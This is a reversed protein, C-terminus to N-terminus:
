RIYVSANSNMVVAAVAALAATIKPNLGDPMVTEGTSLIGAYANENNEYVAMQMQFYNMLTSKEDPSPARGTLKQFLQTIQEECSLETNQMLKVALMKSAEVFQPANMLVLSQMPTNTEQRRMICYGRDPADFTNMVPHPITRKWFTYMGRRYLKDGTDQEYNTNSGFSWLGEPQYPKVSPGGITRVLLGSAALAQDRLLEAPLRKTPYRALLLNEPDRERLESATFSSQRYTKSMVIQKMIAKTDWGSQMYQLALWDLLDPHSPLSGQNGFDEATKVLGKGFCQQWLRNVAVRATLPNNPNVLWQSLGLRNKPLSDDFALISQPTNPEVAEGHADYAGRNLLYAQRSEPMEAMVMVEEANEYIDNKAQRQTRLQELLQKYGGDNITSLYFKIFAEKEEPPVGVYESGIFAGHFRSILGRVDQHSNHPNIEYRSLERDYVTIDDVRGNTFGKSRWRAGVRLNTTIGDKVFVIDKYLNDRKVSMDAPEGNIYFHVGAAKGSGDYTLAIHIWEDRPVPNNSILNISNYPYTHALRVDFRDHQVYVQYGKFSYIIGGKNSHFIVGEDLEKPVWVYMAVTFPDAKKFRGVGPFDLMGDGDLQLANNQKQFHSNKDRTVFKPPQDWIKMTVTDVIRGSASEIWQHSSVRKLSKLKENHTEDKDLSYEAVKGPVMTGASSLTEHNIWKKLEESKAQSEIYAAIEDETNKIKEDLESIQKKEEDTFLLMTPSPMDPQSWTIQGAEDVNNFFAFLQYFEKQTIPDYKHDHCRACEMTMGLFARSVTIARDAVYEVRFEENVIGGEANQSHNRNFGTATLQATSPNPLLDGALQETLFQDFPMNQNYADIVWDRWRWTPRYNDAQYGYTDAYRALDLWELAMREGYHPSALLRDVVKQYADPSEDALFADIDEIAPPLGTLDFHVRRLITEKDAESSLTLGELTLKKEVFYDININPDNRMKAANTNQLPILSWHPKYEAGQEIWRILLAKEKDTLSLNSEPPPMKIFDQDSVIRFAMQSNDVDGPTIAPTNGPSLVAYASEPQDLRMGAQRKNADPGHCIFCRDSLIPKIHQNYDIEKPLASEWQRIESPLTMSYAMCVVGFLAFVTFLRSLIM